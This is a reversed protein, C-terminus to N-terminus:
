KKVELRWKPGEPTDELIVSMRALDDRLRDAEAWNKEKRAKEILVEISANRVNLVKVVHSLTM